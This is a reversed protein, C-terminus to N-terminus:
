HHFAKIGERFIIVLKDFTGSKLEERLKQCARLCSQYSVQFGVSEVKKFM